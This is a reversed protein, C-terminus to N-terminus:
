PKFIYTYTYGDIWGIIGGTVFGIIPGLIFGTQVNQEVAGESYSGSMPGSYKPPNIVSVIFGAFPGFAAGFVTGFVLRGPVGLLHDIYSIKKIRNIPVPNYYRDKLVYFEILSSPLTKIEAAKLEKGNNLIIKYVPQLYNISNYNEIEKIEDSQLRVKEKKVSTVQFLTDNSILTSGSTTFSSDNNMTVKVKKDMAFNNFDKYFKQKSPFDKITYIYSCGTLFVVLGFLLLYINITKNM